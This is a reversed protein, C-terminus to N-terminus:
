LIIRSIIHHWNLSVITSVVFRSVFRMEPPLIHGVLYSENSVLALGSKLEWLDVVSLTFRIHLLNLIIHTGSVDVVAGHEAVVSALFGEAMSMGIRITAM